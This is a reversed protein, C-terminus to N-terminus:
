VTAPNKPFGLAIAGARILRVPAMANQGSGERGEEDEDSQEGRRDRRRCRPLGLSRRDRELALDNGALDDHGIAAAEDGIRGPNAADREELTQAADVRGRIWRGRHKDRGAATGDRVDERLQPRIWRHRHCLRVVDDVEGVGARNRGDPDVIGLGGVLVRQVPHADALGPVAGLAAGVEDGDEVGADPGGVRVEDPADDLTPVEDVVVRVGVVVVPV